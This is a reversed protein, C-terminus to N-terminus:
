ALFREVDLPRGEADGFPADPRTQLWRRLRAEIQEATEAPHLRRLRARQIGLGSEFLDLALMLREKAGQLRNSEM